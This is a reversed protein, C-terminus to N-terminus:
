QNKTQCLCPTAEVPAPAVQSDPDQELNDENGVGGQPAGRRRRRIVYLSAILFAALGVTIIAGVVGGAISGRSPSHRHASPAPAATTPTISSTQSLGADSDSSESIFRTSFGSMMSTVFENDSTIAETELPTNIGSTTTTLSMLTSSALTTPTAPTNVLLTVTSFMLSTATVLGGWVGADSGCGIDAFQKGPFLTSSLM